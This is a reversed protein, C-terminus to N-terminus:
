EDEQPIGDPFVDEVEIYQLFNAAIAMGLTTWLVPEAKTECYVTQIDLMSEMTLEKM